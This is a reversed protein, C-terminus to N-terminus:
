VGMKSTKADEAIRVAAPIAPAPNCALNISQEAACLSNEGTAPKATKTYKTQLLFKM